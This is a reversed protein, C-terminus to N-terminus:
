KRNGALFGYGIGGLVMIIGITILAGSGRWCNPGSCDIKIAGWVWLVSGLIVSILAWFLPNRVESDKNTM